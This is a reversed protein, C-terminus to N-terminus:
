LYPCIVKCIAHSGGSKDTTKKELTIRNEYKSKFSMSGVYLVLTGIIVISAKHLIHAVREEMSHTHAELFSPDDEEVFEVLQM